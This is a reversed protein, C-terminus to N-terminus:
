KLYILKISKSYAGAELRGIYMGSPLDRAEFKLRHYGAAQQADVLSAVQRGSVDYLQFRVPLAKELFYLITTSANFPNPYAQLLISNEPAISGDRPSDDISTEITSFDRFIVARGSGDYNETDKTEWIGLILNPVPADPETIALRCDTGYSKDSLELSAGTANGLDDFMRYSPYALWSKEPTAEYADEYIFHITSDGQRIRIDADKQFSFTHESLQVDATQPTGDRNFIRFYAGKGSGDTGNGADSYPFDQWMIVFRGDNFVDVEPYEQVYWIPETVSLDGNARRQSEFLKVPPNGEYVPKCDFLQFWIDRDRSAGEFNGATESYWTAALVSDPFFKLSIEAQNYAIVDAVGIVDSISNGERDFFKMLIDGTHWGIVFLSGDLSVAVDPRDGIARIGEGAPTPEVIFNEEGNACAIICFQVKGNQEWTVVFRDSGPFAELSATDTTPGTHYCERFTKRDYSVAFINEDPGNIESEFVALVTGRENVAIEPSDQHGFTTSNVQVSNPYNGQAYLGSVLFLAFSLLFYTIKLFRGAAICIVASLNSKM